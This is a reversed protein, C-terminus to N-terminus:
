RFNFRYTLGADYYGSGNRESFVSFSDNLRFEGYIGANDELYDPPVTFISIRNVISDINVGKTDFQRLVAKALLISGQGLAAQGFNDGDRAGPMLGTTMMLVLQDQPMPPNSRLFFKPKDLPGYIVLQIDYNAAQAYGKIDLAPIRPSNERFYIYGDPINLITFPLYGRINQMQIKGTPRPDGLTGKLIIDPNIEGSALNGALVFPTKNKISIDLKWSGWPEPVFGSLSPLLPPPSADVKASALLPTLELRKYISGNILGIDGTVAGDTGQGAIRIDFDSRLRITPNRMLLVKTGTLKLDIKPANLDIIDISGAINFPAAGITGGLNTIQLKTGEFLIKGGFANLRPISPALALSIDQILFEGHIHPQSLRNTIKANGEISGTLSRAQPGLLPKFRSLDTKPIRISANLDGDPNVFHPKGNEAISIGFPFTGEVSLPEVNPNFLKGDITATGNEANISLATKSVLLLERKSLAKSFYLEKSTLSASFTPSKINGTANLQFDLRGRLPSKKGILDFLHDLELPISRVFAYIEKDEIIGSQWDKGQLLCFPNWPLYLQAVALKKERAKVFLDDINVGKTGASIVTSLQLPDGFLEFKSLYLNEPSYTGTFQGRLGVPYEPTKINELALEFAGSHASAVGDGNWTLSLGGSLKKLLDDQQKKEAESDNTETPSVPTSSLEDIAALYPSLDKVDLKLEGQYRHPATIQLDGRATLQTNASDAQLTEITLDDEQIKAKANVKGLPINKITLQESQLSLHGSRTTNKQQFDAQVHIQGESEDLPLLDDFLDTLSTLHLIDANAQLSFDSEQLPKDPFLRASGKADIKNKDQTLLFRELRIKRSQLKAALSLNKWGRKQYLFDNAKLQLTTQGALPDQTNGHFSAFLEQLEGEAQYHLGLSALVPAIPIKQGWLSLHLAPPTQDNSINFDCRLWGEHITAELTVAPGHQRLADIYIDEALIGPAFELGALYLGANKWATKASLNSRQIDLLNSKIALQGVKLKGLADESLSLNLKQLSYRQRDTLILIDSDQVNIQLPLALLVYQRWTRFEEAADELSLEKSETDAPAPPPLHDSQLDLVFTLKELSLRSFLRERKNIIEWLNQFALELRECHLKSSNAHPLKKDPLFSIDTIVVPQGFRVRVTAKELELGLAPAAKELGRHILYPLLHRESIRYTIGFLVLTTLLIVLIIKRKKFRFM